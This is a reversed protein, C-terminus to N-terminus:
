NKKKAQPSQSKFKNLMQPKQPPLPPIPPTGLATVALDRVTAAQARAAALNAKSAAGKGLIKADRSARELARNFELAIAILQRDYKGRAIKYDKFEERYDELDIAYQQLPSLTSTPSPTPTIDASAPLAFLSLSLSAAILVGKRMIGGIQNPLPHWHIKHLSQSYGM